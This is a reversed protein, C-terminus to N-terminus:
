TDRRVSRRLPAASDADRRQLHVFHDAVVRHQMALRQPLIVHLDAGIDAAQQDAAFLQALVGLLFSPMPCLSTVGSPWNESSSTSHM